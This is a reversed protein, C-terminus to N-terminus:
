MVAVDKCTVDAQFAANVQGFTKNSKKKKRCCALHSLVKDLPELSRLCLPLWDWTQFKKPLWDPKHNQILNIFVILLILVVLPVGVVYLAVIGALSLLFVAMPILFFAALLYAAAFWRYKATTEGLFAALPLPWRMCPVPYFILIGTLNFLLHCLAIQISPRLRLGDAALSALLATTTTGINSGLTLPYVRDVSIIGLGVLPTLASTFVSSSQLLITFLCGVLIALYGTLWPVYPLDSNLTKQVVNAIQSSYEKGKLMSNLVKVIAVLCTCLLLLAVVVLIAGVGTDGLSDAVGRFAYACEHGGHCDRRLLTANEFDPNRLTWETLVTKNLQVVLDTLPRTLATLLNLQKSKDTQLPFQEVIYGTSYELYGTVIELPLLFLVCLWNFMDHVTAGAFARGFNEREAIHSMSVITNTVSTGVNAGMITPIAAHVDMFGAAVMSVIISTSTSSSQVLVTALVGIMLGVVPNSLLASDRFVEGTARGGLLRFSTALFDLSCIFFYLLCLLAAIQGLFWTIMTNQLQFRCRQQYRVKGMRRCWLWM